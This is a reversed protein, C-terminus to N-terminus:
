KRFVISGQKNEVILGQDLWNNFRKYKAGKSSLRLCNGIAVLFDKKSFAAQGCYASVKNFEENYISKDLEEDYEDKFQLTFVTNCNNCVYDNKNESRKTLSIDDNNCSPCILKLTKNVTFILGCEETNCKYSIKNLKELVPTIDESKCLPCNM